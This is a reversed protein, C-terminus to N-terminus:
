KKKGRGKGSRGGRGGRGGGRGRGGRSEEEEEEFLGLGMDEFLEDDEDRLEEEVAALNEELADDDMEEDFMVEHTGADSDRERTVLLVPNMPAYVLYRSAGSQFTVVEVGESEEDMGTDMVLTDTENFRVAGRVTMCFASRQLLMGKQALAAAMDPIIQLLEEDGIDSLDESEDLGEGRLVDIPHDLPLCLCREEGNALKFRRRLMCLLERDTEPEVVTVLPMAPPIENKGAAAIVSRARRPRGLALPASARRNEAAAGPRSSQLVRAGRVPFVARTPALQALM